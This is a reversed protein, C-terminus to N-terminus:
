KKELPALVPDKLLTAVWDNKQVNFDLKAITAIHWRTAPPLKPADLIKDIIERREAETKQLAKEIGVHARGVIIAVEPKEKKGGSMLYSVTKLKQAMLNNRLTLIIRKLEPHTRERLGRLSREVKRATSKEGPEDLGIHSAVFDSFSSSLWAGVAMKGAMKLFGRRTVPERFSRVADKALSALVALGATKEAADIYRELSMAADAYSVDVLFVPRGDQRAKELILKYQELGEMASIMKEALIETEYYGVCELVIADAGEVTKPDEPRDHLGYVIRLKAEPTEIAVVNEPLSEQEEM